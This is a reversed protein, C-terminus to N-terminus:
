KEALQGLTQDKWDPNNQTILVADPGGRKCLNETTEARIQESLEPDSLRRLYDDASGAKVWRPLLANSIRTGSAQWPYQDATVDLGEARAAEVQAILVDSLGWVDVGLAKIHAINAPINAQRSIEIVETVAAELGINYTAEDRVHSDYVGGYESVTKALEIVESTESFSGPAYFLGTSLGLAGANMGRSIEDKMEALEIATPARKEGGMVFERLAGHGIFLATNTGIGAGDLSM